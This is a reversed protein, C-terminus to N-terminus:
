WSIEYSRKIIIIDIDKRPAELLNLAEKIDDVICALCDPMIRMICLFVYLSRVHKPKKM